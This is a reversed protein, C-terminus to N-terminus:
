CCGGELCTSVASSTERYRLGKTTRPDREAGNQCDFAKAKSLPITKHPEILIMDKAYPAKAYIQFTKDCVATRLGRKLVHGDDDTVQKWPGRYVVAQHREWCRGEKGKYATVTVSRFEIGQVTRWPKEDRKEIQIGYFGAKEFAQLFEREQFAGSICGSWLAPDEKLSEPVIEDSVIDSIAVRGGKKLVRHMESFLAQKDSPMVLNLVCNSIIVTVSEDAILPKEEALRKKVAEFNMYNEASKVPHDSLYRDILDLDTKLDQIKGRKFQVNAYGLKQAMERQYKRALTLMAPNFDVGIVRGKKGVIQSAIYCIKGAGSGLDLVLDGERVYRSPDGCGYDKEIIEQPLMKLHQTDYSVPCCLEAQRTKAGEAYRKKVHIELDATSTKSKGNRLHSRSKHKVTM